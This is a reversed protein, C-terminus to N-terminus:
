PRGVGERWLQRLREKRLEDLEERSLAKAEKRLFDQGQRPRVFIFSTNAGWSSREFDCNVADISTTVINRGCGVFGKLTFIATRYVSDKGSAIEEGTRYGTYVPRMGIHLLPDSYKQDPYQIRLQIGVDFPCLELGFQYAVGYIHRLPANHRGCEYVSIKVLDIEVENIRDLPNEYTETNKEYNCIMDYEARGFYVDRRCFINDEFSWFAKPDLGGIKITKWIKHFPKNDFRKDDIDALDALESNRTPLESKYYDTYWRPGNDFGAPSDRNEQRDASVQWRGGDAYITVKYIDGCTGEAMYTVPKGNIPLTGEKYTKQDLLNM